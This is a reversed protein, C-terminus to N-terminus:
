LSSRCVWRLFPTRVRASHDEEVEGPLRSRLQTAVDSVQDTPQLGSRSHRAAPKFSRAAVEFDKGGVKTDLEFVTCIPGEAGLAQLVRLNSVSNEPVGSGSGADAGVACSETDYLEPRHRRHLASLTETISVANSALLQAEQTRRLHHSIMKSIKDKMDTLQVCDDCGCVEGLSPPVADSATVNWRDVTGPAM